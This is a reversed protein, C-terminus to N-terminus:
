IKVYRGSYALAKKIIDKGTDADDCFALPTRRFYFALPFDANANASWCPTEM